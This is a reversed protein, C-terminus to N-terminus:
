FMPILPVASFDWTQDSNQWFEHGCFPRSKSHSTIQFRAKSSHSSLKFHPRGATSDTRLWIVPTRVPPWSFVPFIDHSLLPLCHTLCDFAFLHWPRSSVLLLWPHTQPPPHHSSCHIRQAKQLILRRMVKAWAEPKWVTLPYIAATKLWKM